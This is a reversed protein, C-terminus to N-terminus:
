KVEEQEVEPQEVEAKAEANKIAKEENVEAHVRQQWSNKSTVNKAANNMSKMFGDMEERIQKNKGNGLAIKKSFLKNTVKEFISSVRVKVGKKVTAIGNREAKNAMELISNREEKSFGYKKDYLGTLNYKIAIKADEMDEQRDEKSEGMKTVAKLYKETKSTGNKEDFKELIAVIAPDIGEEFSDYLEYKEVIEEITMPPIKNYETIDREDTDKNIISYKDIDARYRIEINPDDDLAEIEEPEIEEQLEKVRETIQNIINEFYAREEPIETQALMGEYIDLIDKEELSHLTKEIDEITECRSRIDDELAMYEEDAEVIDEFGAKLEALRQELEEELIQREQLEKIKEIDDILNGDNDYVQGQKMTATPRTETQKQGVTNTEPQKAGTQKQGATNIEPSKAGTQKQGATNTEPSKAGAQKQGATNTEPSKAGAQKQEAPKTEPQKTGTQKQEESKEGKQRAKLENIANEIQKRSETGEVYKLQEEYIDLLTKGELATLVKKLDGKVKLNEKLKIYSPLLLDKNDKEIEIFRQELQQQLEPAEKIKENKKGLKELEVEQQKKWEDQQKKNEEDYIEWAKKEEEKIKEDTEIDDMTIVKDPEEVEVEDETLKHIEDEEKHNEVIEEIYDIADESTFDIKGYTEEFDNLRKEAEKLGEDNEITFDEYEFKLTQCEKELTKVEKNLDYISVNLEKNKELYFRRGEELMKNGKIREAEDKYARSKTSMDKLIQQKEELEKQKKELNERKEEKQKELEQRKEEIEQNMKEKSDSIFAGVKEFITSRMEEKKAERIEILEEVLKRRADMVELKKMIELERDATYVKGQEKSKESIKIDELIDAWMDPTAQNAYEKYEEILPKIEEFLEKEGM